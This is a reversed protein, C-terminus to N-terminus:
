PTQTPLYVDVTTGVNLTSRVVMKGHHESIIKYSIMLGLGTGKEKTTYFPEGLKPIREEPIGQGEDVVRVRLRESSALYEVGLRIVGGNPMAEISNKLINIFVQKLQNEECQILPIDQAATLEIQINNLIAQTEVLAIISQLLTVINKEQFHVAQPKALVLFENIILEIRDLESLMITFYEDKAGKTDRILQVFGKIATLPNRIEHAVGAALQGVVSLKDSKRLLEETRRSETIDKGISYIGVTEGGVMIPFHRVGLEFQEGDKRLVNMEFSQYHGDVSAAVHFNVKKREDPIVLEAFPRGKVEVSSYGFIREAEPNISLIEGALNLSILASPNHEYLSRLEETYAQLNRSMSNVRDALEGLEDKTRLDIRAEFNGRAMDNVKRLIQQVPRVVIRAIVYGLVFVAALMILSIVTNRLLQQNLVTQIAAYDTVLGLVYPNKSTQVPIYNKIVAKGNVTTKWTVIQGKSSAEAIKAADQPDQYTYNGFFIPRNQLQIYQANNINTVIPAKGFSKPNFGTIELMETNNTLTRDVIAQAGTLKEYQRIYTDNVYPDIIYNTTGDYYYGWKDVQTPDASAVDIPGAWYHPLAQGESVHVDEGRLLQEMAERFVGWEKTSLNIEKPDSSKLGVIDDATKKFLTIHSIGLQRSLEVLQENTVKDIDPDLSAQAAIAASRLREGLLEEVYQSGQESQEMAIGIERAIGEMQERQENILVGRTNYYFLANNLILISSVVITFFIALKRKISM